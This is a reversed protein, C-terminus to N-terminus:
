EWQLQEKSQLGLNVLARDLVKEGDKHRDLLLYAKWQCYYSKWYKSALYEAVRSDLLAQHVDKECGELMLTVSRNTLLIPLANRIVEKQANDLKTTIAKEMRCIAKTYAVLAGHRDGLRYATNGIANEDVVDMLVCGFIDPNEEAWIMKALSPSPLFWEFPAPFRDFLPRLASMYPALEQSLIMYEPIHYETGRGTNMISIEIFRVVTDASPRGSCRAVATPRTPYEGAWRLVHEGSTEEHTASPLLEVPPWYYANRILVASEHVTISEDKADRPIGDLLSLVVDPEFGYYSDLRVHDM